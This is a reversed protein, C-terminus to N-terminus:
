PDDTTPKKVKTKPEAKAKAKPEAKVKPEPKAKPEKVKPEAKAKPEAKTEKGKAFPKKAAQAAAYLAPMDAATVKNEDAGTPWSVFTAKKLTHKFFYLGYPGRKITYDGVKREYADPQPSTKQKIKEIISELTDEAKFPVKISNHQAYFGYPGKKKNIPSGEYMGIETGDKLEYAALAQALTITDFSTHPPLSAFETTAEKLLLPGKRSLIVVIGDGLVRKRGDSEGTDTKPKKVLHAKYRDKYLDWNTQLLAPGTQTGKSINDLTQEMQATYNYAFLDAYHSYLFEAVTRGLATTQLKNSEKGVVQKHTSEKPPWAAQPKLLWKRIDISSGAADSKEVYNRDVITTVLSAFTSPRGIGKTELEHILSAETYRAHPKTFGEEATIALWAAAQGQAVKAWALWSETQDTAKEEAKASSTLVKWGQFKSKLQEGTWPIQNPDAEIAFTLSRCDETAAAMQSQFARTWILKYIKAETPDVGELETTEPHTPRIAEHAAQAEPAQDKKTTKAKTTKKVETAEKAAAKEPPACHQGPPGLYSQGHSKEIIKRIGEAGENSLFANDTRMYTIHGGEYLKQASAMTAKPNMNYLKSAEQQLTSTILPKPANHTRVSEKISKLFSKSARTLPQLYQQTETDSQLQSRSAEVPVKIADCVFSATLAWFRKAAHTEIELDRDLVLKLAPTQCRGASLPLGNANLQAWLVPSLTYGILMDLQARTQQAAFKNMDILRPESIAKQIAPKTIAHFIIRKTTLPNLKLVACIHFAIGEGERDDDTALIVEEADAAAAKLQKITSAKTSISEYAPAWSREIGVADLDQKLARIHGMSSLVRYGPGLYEQIKSCKAPSEVVVLRM